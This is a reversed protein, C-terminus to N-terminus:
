KQKHLVTTRIDELSGISEEKVSTAELYIKMALVFSILCSKLM